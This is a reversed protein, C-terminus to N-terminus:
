RTGRRPVLWVAILLTCSLAIVPAPGWRVFPTAGQYTIAHGRLVFPKFQPSRALVHGDADIIASIGTNTARLLYRGAELARTRSIQLHQHPAISDGFWSDDSVNVLLNAAPLSKRVESAYADEYCISVGIRFPGSQLPRQREGGAAFNSMPIALFNLIPRVWRDLPLYEGFPVLHHKDYRQDPANLLMVSNYYPGRHRDGSPIGVLLSTGHKSALQGLRSLVDPIEDPFAPVATEPWLVLAHGWYPTTMSEYLELTPTRSAEQWKLAQPVAGQVLAVSQSDGAPSTWSVTKLAFGIAAVLAIVIVPLV